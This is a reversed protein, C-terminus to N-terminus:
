STQGCRGTANPNCFVITSRSGIAHTLVHGGVVTESSPFLPLCILFLHSFKLSRPIANRFRIAVHIVAAFYHGMFGRATVTETVRATLKDLAVRRIFLTGRGTLQACDRIALRLTGSGLSSLMFLSPVSIERQAFSATVLRIM